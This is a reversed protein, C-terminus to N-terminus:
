RASRSKRMSHNWPLPTNRPDCDIYKKTNRNVGRRYRSDIDRGDDIGDDDNDGDLEVYIADEARACM